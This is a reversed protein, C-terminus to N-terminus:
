GKQSCNDKTGQNRRQYLDRAPSKLGANGALKEANECIWFVNIM